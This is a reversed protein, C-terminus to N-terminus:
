HSQSLQALVPPCFAPSKLRVYQETQAAIDGGSLYAEGTVKFFHMAVSKSGHTLQQGEVRACAQWEVTAKAIFGRTGIATACTPETESASPTFAALTGDANLCRRLPTSVASATPHEAAYEAARDLLSQVYTVGAVTLDKQDGRNAERIVAAIANDAAQQAALTEEQNSTLRTELTTSRMFSLGLVTLCLLFILVVVLAAGHQSSRSIPMM